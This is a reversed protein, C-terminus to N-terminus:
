MAKIFARASYRGNSIRLGNRQTIAPHTPLVAKSSSKSRFMNFLIYM